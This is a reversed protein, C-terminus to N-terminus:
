TPVRVDGKTVKTKKSRRPGYLQFSPGDTQAQETELAEREDIQSFGVQVINLLAGKRQDSGPLKAPDLRWHADGLKEAQQEILAARKQAEAELAAKAARAAGQDFLPSHTQPSGLSSRSEIKARKSPREDESQSVGPSTPSGAAAARQMFKMTLLRQSAGSPTSAM